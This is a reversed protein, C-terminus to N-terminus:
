APWNICVVVLLSLPPLTSFDSGPCSRQHGVSSGGAMGTEVGEEEEEEPFCVEAGEGPDM